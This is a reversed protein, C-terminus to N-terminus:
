DDSIVVAFGRHFGACKANRVSHVSANAFDRCLTAAIERTNVVRGEMALEIRRYNRGDRRFHM